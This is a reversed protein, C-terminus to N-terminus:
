FLKEYEKLICVNSAVNWGLSLAKEEAAQHFCREQLWLTLPKSSCSARWANIEDVLQPVADSNRFVDVLDILEPDIQQLSQVTPIGHLKELQSAPTTKTAGSGKEWTPNVGIVNYGKELLFQSVHVSPKDVNTSLGLVAINKVSKLIPLILGGNVLRVGKSM